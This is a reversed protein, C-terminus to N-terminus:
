ADRLRGGVRKGEQCWLGARGDKLCVTETPVAADPRSPASLMHIRRSIVLHM